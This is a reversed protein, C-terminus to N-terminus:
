EAVIARSARWDARDDRRRARRRSPSNSPRACRSSGRARRAPARARRQDEAAEAVMQDVADAQREADGVRHLRGREVASVSGICRMNRAKASCVLLSRGASAAQMRPERWVSLAASTALMAQGTSTATPVRSSTAPSGCRRAAINGCPRLARSVPARDCDRRRRCPRYPRRTPTGPWPQRSFRQSATFSQGCDFRITEQRGQSTPIMAFEVLRNARAASM